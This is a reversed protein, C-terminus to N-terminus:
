RRGMGAAAGKMERGPVQDRDHPAADQKRGWRDRDQDSQPLSRFHRYGLTRAGHHSMLSRRPAVNETDSDEAPIGQRTRLTPHEWQAQNARASRAALNVM